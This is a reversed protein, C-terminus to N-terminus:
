VVLTLYWITSSTTPSQEGWQKKSQVRTRHGTVTRPRPYAGYKGGEVRQRGALRHLRGEMKSRLPGTIDTRRCRMKHSVVGPRMLAAYNAALALFQVKWSIAYRIIIPQMGRRPIVGGM